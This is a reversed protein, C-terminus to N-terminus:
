AVATQESLLRPARARLRASEAHQRRHDLARPLEVELVDLGATFLRGLIEAADGRLRGVADAFRAVDASLHAKRVAAGGFVFLAVRDAPQLIGQAHLAAIERSAISLRSAGTVDELWMSASVDVAVAVDVGGRLFTSSGHVIFPRAAALATLYPYALIGRSGGQYVISGALLAAVAAWRGGWRRTFAFGFVVVIGAAVGFLHAVAADDHYTYLHESLADPDIGSQDALFDLVEQVAPHFLTGRAYVETRNCTSLLAVEALFERGALDRLAKPVAVSPVAVRELVPLPVTRHNLGVVVFSM